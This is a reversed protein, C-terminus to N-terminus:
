GAIKKEMFVAQGYKPDLEYDRFGFRQYARRAGGNESLVELTLKCCGRDVALQQAAALLHDVIGQGRFDPHVVVDHINLLPKAAFTSFGEICNILGATRDGVRALFSFADQRAALKAILTERVDQRLATGGGAPESAYLNLLDLLAVAHSANTYDVAILEPEM